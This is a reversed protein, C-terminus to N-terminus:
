ILRSVNGFLKSAKKKDIRAYNKCYANMRRRARGKDFDLSYDKFIDGLIWYPNKDKLM